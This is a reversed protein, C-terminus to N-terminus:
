NERGLLIFIDRKHTRKVKRETKRLKSKIFETSHRRKLIACCTKINGKVDVQLTRKEFIQKITTLKKFAVSCMGDVNWREL